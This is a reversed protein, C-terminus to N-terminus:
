FNIYKSFNSIIFEIFEVADENLQNHHICFGVVNSDIVSKIKELIKEHGRYQASKWDTIDINSNIDM